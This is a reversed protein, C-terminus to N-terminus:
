AVIGGDFEKSEAPLLQKAALIVAAMAAVFIMKLIPDNKVLLALKKAAKM